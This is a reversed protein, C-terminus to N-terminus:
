NFQSMTKEVGNEVISVIVNNIISGVNELEMQERKKFDGLVYKALREGKPRRTQGTWISRPSIGVRIRIFDKSGLADIISKIGNHGGDGKGVSIKFEGLSLDVDDYIVILKGIDDKALFKKVAQGSHNMFTDPKLLFIEEDKIIGSSIEGSYKSSTVFDPLRMIQVLFDLIIFGINHRTNAYKEGPNGLGVIYFM